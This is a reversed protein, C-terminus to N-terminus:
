HFAVFIQYISLVTSLLVVIVEGMFTPFEMVAFANADTLRNARRRVKVSFWCGYAAILCAFPVFYLINKNVLASSALNFPVNSKLMPTTLFVLLLPLFPFVRLWTFRTFAVTQMWKPLDDVTLDTVRADMIQKHATKVKEETSVKNKKHKSLTESGRKM